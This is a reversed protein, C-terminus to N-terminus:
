NPYVRQQNVYINKGTSYGVSDDYYFDFMVIEDDSSYTPIYSHDSFSLIGLSVDDITITMETQKSLNLLNIGYVVISKMERDLGGHDDSIYNSVFKGYYKTNDNKLKYFFTIFPM